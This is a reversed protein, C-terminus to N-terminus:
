LMQGFSKVADSQGKDQALKGMQVEALNGEIADKIFTQDRKDAALASTVALVAATAGILLLKHTMALEGQTILLMTAGLVRPPQYRNRAQVADIETVPWPLRASRVSDYPLM